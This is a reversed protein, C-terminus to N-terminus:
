CNNVNSMSRVESRVFLIDGEVGMGSREEYNPFTVSRLVFGVAATVKVVEVRSELTDNLRPYLTLM